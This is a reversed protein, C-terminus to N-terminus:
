TKKAEPNSINQELSSLFHTAPALNMRKACKKSNPTTLKTAVPGMARDFKKDGRRCVTKLKQSAQKWGQAYMQQTTPENKKAAPGGNKWGPAVLKQDIQREKKPRILEIGNKICTKLTKKM